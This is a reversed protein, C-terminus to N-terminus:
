GTLRRLSKNKDLRYPSFNRGNNESSIAKNKIENDIDVFHTPIIPQLLPHRLGYPFAKV